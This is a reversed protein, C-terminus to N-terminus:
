SKADGGLMEEDEALANDLLALLERKVRVYREFAAMQKGGALAEMDHQGMPLGRQGAMERATAELQAAAERHGRAIREYAEHEALSNEDSVDLAKMHAELVAALAAELEGLKAPLASNEALGKGCTQEKDAM